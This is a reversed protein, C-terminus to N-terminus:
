EVPGEVGGTYTEADEGATTLDEARYGGRSRFWAILLLYVLLMGAPLSSVILLADRRAAAKTQEVTEAPEEALAKVAQADLSRYPGFLSMKPEDEVVEQYLAPARDALEATMQKDQVFGLFQAGIIGVGLMGVGAIANLTLAGGRPFREAVVGLTTPWFFTQGVAYITAALPILYAGTAQSMFAIGVAAFASSLALVGLPGLYRVLPACGFRLVMMISASYILVWLGSLGYAERMVQEMLEKIWADTGLETTALPIMLAVLLIFLGRGLAFKVYIAYPVVLAAAAAANIGVIAWFGLEQDAFWGSLFVRNLEYVILFTVIWAGIVGAERLMARYSVGAAVRESVPFRVRLMMLGYVLTPILVLAVQWKWVSARQGEFFGALVGDPSLALTLLGGLVLGAPWGAHLINLWRTKQKRYVSAVVPNIVAEVTGNALANIFTGVYLWWYDRAFITIVVSVAHAVFAFVMAKGYGVRDIVLSFLVISIAFPWLGVGLLEGKQTESLDFQGAWDDVVFARIIFSFSTAILAVFCAWFLWRRDANEAATASSPHDTASM